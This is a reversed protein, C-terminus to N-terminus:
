LRPLCCELNEIKDQQRKMEDSLIELAETKLPARSELSPTYSEFFRLKYEFAEQSDRSSISNVEQYAKELLDYKTKKYDLKKKIFKISDVSNGSITLDSILTELKNIKDQNTIFGFLPNYYKEIYNGLTQLLRNFPHIATEFNEVEDIKQQYHARFHREVVFRDTELSFSDQKFYWSQLSCGFLQAVWTTFKSCLPLLIDDAVFYANIAMAIHGIFNLTSLLTWTAPIIPFFVLLCTILSGTFLLMAVAEFASVDNSIIRYTLNILNGCCLLINALVLLFFQSFISTAIILPAFIGSVLLRAFFSLRQSARFFFNKGEM